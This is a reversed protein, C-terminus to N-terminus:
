SQFVSYLRLNEINFNECNERTPSLNKPEDDNIANMDVKLMPRAECGM